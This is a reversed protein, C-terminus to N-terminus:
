SPNTKTITFTINFSISGNTKFIIISTKSRQVQSGPGFSRVNFDIFLLQQKIPCLTFHEKIFCYFYFRELSIYVILRM